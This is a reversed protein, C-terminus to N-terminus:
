RKTQFKLLLLLLWLLLRFGFRLWLLFWFRRILLLNVSLLLPLSFLSQLFWLWM